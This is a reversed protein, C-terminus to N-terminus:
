VLVNYGHYVLLLSMIAVLLLSTELIRRYRRATWVVLAIGFGVALKFMAAVAPDTAFLWAMVPNVEVAGMSLAQLTLLLDAVNLLVFVM